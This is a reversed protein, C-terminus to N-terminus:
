DGEVISGRLRLSQGYIEVHIEGGGDGDDYSYTALYQTM